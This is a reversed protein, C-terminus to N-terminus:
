SLRGRGAGPHLVRAVLMVASALLWTSLPVITLGGAVHGLAHPWHNPLNSHEPAAYINALGAGAVLVGLCSFLNAAVGQVLMLPFLHRYTGFGSTTARVGAYVVGVLVLATTSLLEALRDLGAISLLLRSLGVVVIAALIPRIFSVYETIRKGFM